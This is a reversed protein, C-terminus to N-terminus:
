ERRFKSKKRFVMSTRNFDIEASTYANVFEFGLKSMNNLIDMQNRLRLKDKDVFMRELKSLGTEYDSGKYQITLLIGGMINAMESIIIVYEPLEDVHVDMSDTRLEQAQIQTVLLLAVMQVVLKGFTKAM